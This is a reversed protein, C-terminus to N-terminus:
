ADAATATALAAASEETLLRGRTRTSGCEPCRRGRHPGYGCTQCRADAVRRDARRVGFLFLPVFFISSYLLLNAAFGFVRPRVPLLTYGRGSRRLLIASGTWEVSNGANAANADAVRGGHLSRFPWGLDVVEIVPWPSPGLRVTSVTRFWGWYETSSGSVRAVSVGGLMAFREKEGAFRVTGFAPITSLPAILGAGYAVAISTVFGAILSAISIRKTTYM